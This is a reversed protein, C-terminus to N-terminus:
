FDKNKFSCHSPIVCVNKRSDAYLQNTKMAETVDPHMQAKRQVLRSGTSTRKNGDLTQKNTFVWKLMKTAQQRELSANGVIAEVSSRPSSM